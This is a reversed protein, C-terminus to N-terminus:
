GALPQITVMEKFFPYLFKVLAGFLLAPIFYYLIILILM